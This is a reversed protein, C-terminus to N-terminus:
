QSPVPPGGKREKYLHANMSGTESTRDQDRQAPETERRGKGALMVGVAVGRGSSRSRWSDAESSECAHLEMRKRVAHVDFDFPAYSPSLVFATSVQGASV